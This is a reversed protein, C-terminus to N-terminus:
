ALPQWGLPQLSRVVLTVEHGISDVFSRGRKAQKDNSSARPAQSPRVAMRMEGHLGSPAVRAQVSVQPSPTCVQMPLEHVPHTTAGTREEQVL